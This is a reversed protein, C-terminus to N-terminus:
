SQPVEGAECVLWARISFALRPRRILLSLAICSYARQHVEDSRSFMLLSQLLSRLLARAGFSRRFDRYICLCDAYLRRLRRLRSETCLWVSGLLLDGQRFVM